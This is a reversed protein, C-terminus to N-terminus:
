ATAAFDTGDRIMANLMTLLKRAAAVIALKVPKGRAVLQDRFPKLAGHGRSAHMGASYLARRLEERGGAIHRRGRWRGSERDYPALGALAAVARRDLRGLEPLEALLLAATVPGVGPATRLRRAQEARAPCRAIEAAILADFRAIEAELWGVMAELSLRVVDPMPEARRIQEAQRMRVLQRRRVVLERLHAPPEPAAGPQPHFTEGYRRLLVADARDSKARIGLVRALDRPAQPSLRVAAAGADALAARLARDHRGTAEFVAIAGEAALREAFGAYDAPLLRADGGSPHSVDIWGKSIDVGVYIQTM